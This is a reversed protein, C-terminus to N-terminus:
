APVQPESPSRLAVGFRRRYEAPPLGTVRNFLKRFASPDGYGIEWAIQEVPRRTLELAERARGIRIQQVYETPRLGTATKFRRLFTREELGAREALMSVSWEKAASTQLWHQAKRIAADGHDLKPVFMSYPLQAQRPPDILLLRATQLMVSAGLLRQVLTLGLDTWALIGAATIIDGEDIIMRDADVKVDPFRSGFTDAFMWHTTVERGALLGTQALLFVGGCVSGLSVGREHSHAMWSALTGMAPLDEPIILSPPTIIYTLRHQEGPHSDYSCTMGEGADQWHTVRIVPYDPDGTFRSAIGALRFLDSLGYVASLQCEPYVVLGVEAVARSTEVKDTKDRM